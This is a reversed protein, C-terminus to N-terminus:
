DKQTLQSAENGREKEILEKKGLEIDEETFDKLKPLDELANLGFHILFEKTTGYLFPRGIIEKRGTMKILNRDLLTKMVGDVNVGRIAEIEARTIPQKYSIISLTELSPVSLKDRRDSKYLKRIWPGYYPDTALRYGGGVEEITFIRNTQIYDSKLEEILQKIADKTMEELIEKIREIALPRESVFLLTEIIKKAEENTM